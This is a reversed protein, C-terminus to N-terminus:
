ENALATTPWALESHHFSTTALATSFSADEPKSMHTTSLIELVEPLGISASDAYSGFFAVM